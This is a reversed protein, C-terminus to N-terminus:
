FITDSLIVPMVIYQPKGLLKSISEISWDFDVPFTM